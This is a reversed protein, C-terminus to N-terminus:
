EENLLAPSRNAGNPLKFGTSSDFAVGTGDNEAWNSLRQTLKSNRKGTGWGTPPSM